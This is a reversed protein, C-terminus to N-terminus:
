KKIRERKEYLRSKEEFIAKGVMDSFRDARTLYGGAERAIHIKNIRSKITDAYPFLNLRTAKEIGRKFLFQHNNGYGTKEYFAKAKDFDRIECGHLLGKRYQYDMLGCIERLVWHAVDRRMYAALDDARFARCMAILNDVYVDFGRYQKLQIEDGNLYRLTSYSDDRIAIEKVWESDQRQADWVGKRYHIECLSLIGRLVGFSINTNISSHRM